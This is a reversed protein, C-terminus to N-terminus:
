FILFSLPTLPQNLWNASYPDFRAYSFLQSALYNQTIISNLVQTWRYIPPLENHTPQNDLSATLTHMHTSFLRYSAHTIYHMIESTTQQQLLLSSFYMEVMINTYHTLINTSQLLTSSITKWNTHINKYPSKSQM